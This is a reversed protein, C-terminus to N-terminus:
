INEVAPVLKNGELDFDSEALNHASKPAKKYSMNDEEGENDCHDLDAIM